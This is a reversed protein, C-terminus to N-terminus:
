EKVTPWGEKLQEIIFQQETMIAKGVDGISIMGILQSGKFVPLHRVRRETMIQMCQEVTQDQRATVVESTMIEKVATTKSAKGQLVVKRTYDRESLIGVMRGEDIVLLAGIGKEAMKEIAQYVSADPGISWIDHGKSQLVDGVTKM